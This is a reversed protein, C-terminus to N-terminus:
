RPTQGTAAPPSAVAATRGARMFLPWRALRSEEAHPWLPAIEQEVDLVPDRGERSLFQRVASWTRLYGMLHDRTWEHEMVFAPVPIEAFPFAVSRYHDMVMRREPAWYDRMTVEGFRDLIVDIPPAIRVIDYCWVAIIGGQRLVRGAQAFFADLPLWHLAQAVTIVDVSRAELGPASAPTQRYTVRAHAEANELQTASADTAEVRVFHRALGVAAQGSGTACDWALEHGPAISALWAFLADPYRPRFEAYAAAQASFYDKFPNV